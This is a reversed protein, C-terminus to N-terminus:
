WRPPSLRKIRRQEQPKTVEMISPEMIIQKRTQSGLQLTWEELNPDHETWRWMGQAGICFGGMSASHPPLFSLLFLWYGPAVVEVIGEHHFVSKHFCLREEKQLPPLDALFVSQPLLHPWIPLGLLPIWKGRSILSRIQHARPQWFLWRPTPSEPHFERDETGDASWNQLHLLARAAQSICRRGTKGDGGWGLGAQSLVSCGESEQEWRQGLCVLKM